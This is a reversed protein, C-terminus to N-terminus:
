VLLVAPVHLRRSPASLLNKNRIQGPRGHHSLSAEKEHAEKGSSARDFLQMIKQM